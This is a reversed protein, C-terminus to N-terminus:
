YHMSRLERRVTLILLAILGACLIIAVVLSVESGDAEWADTSHGPPPKSVEPRESNGAVNGASGPGAAGALGLLLRPFDATSLATATATEWQAQLTMLFKGIPGLAIAPWVYAVWRRLPAVKAPDVSGTEIGLRTADHGGSGEGFGHTSAAPRQTGETSTSTATRTPEKTGSSIENVSPSSPSPARHPSIQRTEPVKVSPIEVPQAQPAPLVKVPAEPAAPIEVPGKPEALIPPRLPVVSRVSDATEGLVSASVPPTSLVSAILLASASFIVRRM